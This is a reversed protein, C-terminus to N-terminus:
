SLTGMKGQQYDVLAQYIEAQTNMVFPGHGVIPEHIPEGSLLLLQTSEEATLTLGTGTLSFVGLEGTKLQTENSNIAVTGQRVLILTSYNEPIPLPVEAGAALIIDWIHIPTHTSAAGNVADFQGAIVRLHGQHMPFTVTPIQQQTLGQYRAPNMKASAPLNVWLQVVEFLGGTLGFRSSHFEEHVIGRAATMWQVDGTGIIGGGGSSDRHEVEGAYVITVTEFGRHPHAGVGRRQETPSFTCPAVYDLLLFPSYLADLDDHYSFLTQVPFGNGVWHQPQQKILHLLHKKLM